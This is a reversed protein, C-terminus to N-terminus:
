KTIEKWGFTDVMSIKGSEDILIDGVSMSTHWLGAKELQPVAEGNPSWNDGQMATFVDDRSNGERDLLYVHTKELNNPDPMKHTKELWSVGMIGDRFFEPKQYWVKYSQKM